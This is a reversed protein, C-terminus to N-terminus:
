VRGHLSFLRIFLECVVKYAIAANNVLVDLGGYNKQLFDRLRQVSRGDTIDLQHFVPNLGEANLKKLAEQGNAESCALVHLM